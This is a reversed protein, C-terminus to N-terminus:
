GNGHRHHVGQRDQRRERRRGQGDVILNGDGTGIHGDRCTITQPASVHVHEGSSHAQGAGSSPQRSVIANRYNPQRLWLREEASTFPNGGRVGIRAALRPRWTSKRWKWSLNALLDRCRGCRGTGGEQTGSAQPGTRDPSFRRRRAGRTSPRSVLLLLM